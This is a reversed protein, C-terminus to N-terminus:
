RLTILLQNMTSITNPRQNQSALQADIRDHIGLVTAKCLRFRYRFEADGLDEFPKPKNKSFIRRPISEVIALLEDLSDESNESDSISFHM